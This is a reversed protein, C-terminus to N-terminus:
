ESWKKIYNKELTNRVINKPLVLIHTWLHYSQLGTQNWLLHDDIKYSFVKKFPFVLGYFYFCQIKTQM